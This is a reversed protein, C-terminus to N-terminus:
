GTIDDEDNTVENAIKVQSEFVSQEYHKLGIEVRDLNRIYWLANAGIITKADIIERNYLMKFFDGVPIHHIDINEHEGEVGGGESVRDENTVSAVFVFVMESSYGPSAFFNSVLKLNNPRIEYGVEERVERIATQSPEEGADMKGAVIEFINEGAKDQIPYRHQKVLIISDDDSNYIVVAVADPRTLKFRDYTITDGSESTEEVIAKDIKLYGNYERSEAIIKIKPNNM